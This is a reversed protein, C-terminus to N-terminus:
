NTTSARKSLWDILPSLADPMDADSVTATHSVDGDTVTIRYRFSDPARYSNTAPNLDSIDAEKVLKILDRAEQPPLDDADIELHQRLAPAAFGGTRTFEIKM